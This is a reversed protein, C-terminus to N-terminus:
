YMMVQITSKGAAIAGALRNHGDKVEGMKSTILPPLKAGRRYQDAFYKVKDPTTYVQSRRLSGVHVTRLEGDEGWQKPNLPISM